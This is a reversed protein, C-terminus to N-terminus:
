SDHGCHQNAHIYYNYTMAVVWCDLWTKRRM